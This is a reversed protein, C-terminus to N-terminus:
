FQETHLRHDPVGLASLDAAVQEVFAPPGCVFYDLAGRRAPPPLVAHLLRLDVRGVAGTWGPPPEKVAELVTLDLREALRALEDRFFLEGPERGARVLLLPRRDRRDALTRLMSMMPTIGVGAAIMAAGSAPQPLLDVSCSGYPGDIWVPTGPTLRRMLAGFDGTSRVTFECGGGAASSAITFPHEEAGGRRSLRLWAFQGPAFRLPAGRPALVVTCVSASEMRVARVVHESTRLTQGQWRHILAAALAVAVGALVWQMVSHRVLDDVLWVHLASLVVAAVALVLHAWRWLEYDHRVRRRYMGLAIVGALALTAGTAARARPPAEVWTLLVLNTADAAVVVAIHALVSVASLLGLARHTGLLATIGAARSLARLRCVLIFTGVLASLAFLGTLDVLQAWAPGGMWVRVLLPALLLVAFGVLWQRVV